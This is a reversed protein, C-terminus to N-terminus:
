KKHNKIQLISKVIVKKFVDIWFDEFIIYRKELNRDQQIGSGSEFKFYGNFFLFYDLWVSMEINQLLNLQNLASLTHTKKLNNILNINQGPFDDIYSDLLDFGDQLFSLKTVIDNAKDARELFSRSEIIEEPIVM